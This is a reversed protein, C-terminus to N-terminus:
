CGRAVVLVWIPGNPGQAIGVGFADVRPHLMNARHGASNMWGSIIQGPQPYGWALNEATLCSNYGAQMVRGHSNSGDSGSHSFRGSVAIDCAQVQAASSLRRDFAIAPLGNSQRVQNLGAAIGSAMKQMGGPQSCNAAQAAGGACALVLAAAWVKTRIM